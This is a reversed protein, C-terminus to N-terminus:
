PGQHEYAGIDCAKAQPRPFGRQDDSPCGTAADRAPSQPALEQTQTPGGNDALPKLLPDTRPLDGTATLFCTDDTALNHGLSAIIQDKVHCNASGSTSTNNAVITNQLTMTGLAIKDSVPAYGQGSALGGGGRIAHNDTITSNTIVVNAGGRHDIGGGWGTGENVTLSFLTPFARDQLAQGPEPLPFLANGTITTNTIIGGSDLRLGGGSFARNGAILSSRVVPMTGPVSFMGGGGDARNGTLAVRELVVAGTNLVAGGLAIGKSTGRHSPDGGTITMDSLHANGSQGICFVRDLGGGDVITKDAGAGRVTM